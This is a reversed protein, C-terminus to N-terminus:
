EFMEELEGSELKFTDYGEVAFHKSQSLRCNSESLEVFSDSRCKRSDTLRVFAILWNMLILQSHFFSIEIM